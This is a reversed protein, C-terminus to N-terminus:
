DERAETDSDESLQFSGEATRDYVLTLLTTAKKDKMTMLEYHIQSLTPIGELEQVLKELIVREHKGNDERAESKLALNITKKSIDPTLVVTTLGLYPSLGLALHQELEGQIKRNDTSKLLKDWPQKALTLGEKPYERLDINQFYYAQETKLLQLEDRLQATEERLQASQNEVQFLVYLLFFLVVVIGLGWSFITRVHALTEQRQVFIVKKQLKANTPAKAAIAELRWQRVLRHILVGTLGVLFLGISLNFWIMFM